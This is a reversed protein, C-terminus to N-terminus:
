RWAATRFNDENGYRIGIRLSPLLSMGNAIRCGLVTIAERSWNLQIPLDDPHKILIDIVM